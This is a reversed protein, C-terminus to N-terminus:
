FVSSYGENPHLDLEWTQGILDKGFSHHPQENTLQFGAQQYLRHASTLISQTWLTIRKYGATRVFQVCENVLAKGLGIGRAAQEVHLLRLKATDEHEPHRVLFISGLPEGEREAIWCRERHSDFHDIFDACIRAALAEYTGDWGYEQAYLISQRQIVWGMDGPRHPRLVLPARSAGDKSLAAEIIHMSGLLASRKAPSIGELVLEAQAASRRDLDAFAAKGKKTLCLLSHRADQKSSTRGLLKTEEFKRLIRSLYGADLSLEEAIETAGAEARTALEFLVRAETLSFPSDVLGEGLLGLVRTYIRNFRRFAAVSDHHETRDLCRVHARREALL